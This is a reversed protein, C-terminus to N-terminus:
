ILQKLIQEQDLRKSFIYIDFQEAPHGIVECFKGHSDNGPQSQNLDQSHIALTHLDQGTAMKQLSGNTFGYM